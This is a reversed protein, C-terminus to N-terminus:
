PQNNSNRDVQEEIRKLLDRKTHMMLNFIKREYQARIMTCDYDKESSRDLIIKVTLPGFLMTLYTDTNINKNEADNTKNKIAGIYQYLAVLLRKKCEIKADDMTELIHLEDSIISTLRKEETDKEKETRCRLKELSVLREKDDDSLHLRAQFLCGNEKVFESLTKFIWDYTKNEAPRDADASDREIKNRNPRYLDPYKCSKALGKIVKVLESYPEQSGSSSSSSQM